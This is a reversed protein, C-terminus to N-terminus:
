VIEGLHHYRIGLFIAIQRYECCVVIVIQPHSTPIPRGVENASSASHSKLIDRKHLKLWGGDDQQTTQALFCSATEICLHRRVRIPIGMHILLRDRSRRIKLMPIGYMRFITKKNLRPGPSPEVDSIRLYTLSWYGHIDDDECFSM